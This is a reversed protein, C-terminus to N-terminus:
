KMCFTRDGECDAYNECKYPCSNDELLESEEWWVDVCPKACQTSRVEKVARLKNTTVSVVKTAEQFSQLVSYVKM